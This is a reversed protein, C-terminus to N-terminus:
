SRFTAIEVTMQKVLVLFKILKSRLDKADALCTCLEVVFPSVTFELKGQEVFQREALDRYVHLGPNTEM